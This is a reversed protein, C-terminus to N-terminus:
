LAGPVSRRQFRRLAQSESNQTAKGMSATPRYSFSPNMFSGGGEGAKKLKHQVSSSISQRGACTTPSYSFSPNMFSGAPMLPMAKWRWCGAGRRHNRNQKSYALPPLGRRAAACGGPPAHWCCCCGTTRRAASPAHCAALLVPIPRTYWRKKLAHTPRLSIHSCLNPLMSHLASRCYRRHKESGGKGALQLTATARLIGACRTTNQETKTANSARNSIRQAAAASGFMRTKPNHHACRCYSRM